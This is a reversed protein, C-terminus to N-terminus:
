ENDDNSLLNLLETRKYDEEINKIKVDKFDKKEINKYEQKLEIAKEKYIGLVVQETGFSDKYFKKFVNLTSIKNFKDAYIKEDFLMVAGNNSVILFQSAKFFPSISADYLSTLEKLDNFLTNFKDKIPRAYNCAISFFIDKYENSDISIDCLKEEEKKVINEQEVKGETTDDLLINFENTELTKNVVEEKITETENKANYDEFTPFKSKIVPEEVKTEELPTEIKEEILEKKSIKMENTKFFKTEDLKPPVLDEFIEKPEDKAKVIEEKEQIIENNLIPLQTELKIEEIKTNEIKIDNKISTEIPKINNENNKIDSILLCIYEFVFMPQESNKLTLSQKNLINIIELLKTQDNSIIKEVNEDNLVQLLKADNTRIFILKDMIIDQIDHLLLSFNIGTEYFKKVYSLSNKIEGNILQNIFSIKSEIDVLGFMMNIDQIKINKECFSSLQDLISLADRAAGNALLAISDVSEKDITIAEKESIQNILKILKNKHIKNFDYRQCRSIITGPIKHYETTAFIVIVHKPPEELTKLLANWSNTTLMHAEDIIYIKNKLQNPLYNISDILNRMEAVGSNSAADLEIIDTCNNLIISQCNECHNCSEGNSPNTCNIAKAFIKAISTKGSGKNGAFIYAHNLQNLKIANTLTKVVIEQGFIESFNKPRYKRYLAIKNM